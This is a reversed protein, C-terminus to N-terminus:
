VNVRKLYKEKQLVKNHFANFTYFITINYQVNSDFLLYYHIIIYKVINYGFITVYAYICICINYVFFNIYLTYTRICLYLYQVYFIIFLYCQLYIKIISYQFM